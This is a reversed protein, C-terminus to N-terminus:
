TAGNTDAMGMTSNTRWSLEDGQYVQKLATVNLYNVGDFSCNWIVAQNTSLQICADGGGTGNQFWCDHVLTKPLSQTAGDIDIPRNTNSTSTFFHIGSIETKGSSRQHISFKGGVNTTQPNSAIYLFKYTGSGGTRAVNLVLTTGSYSVVTGEMYNERGVK